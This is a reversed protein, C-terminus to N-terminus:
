HGAAFHSSFLYPVYGWLKLLFVVSPKGTRLTQFVNEHFQKAMGFWPMCVLFLRSPGTRIKNKYKTVLHITSIPSLGPLILLYEANRFWQLGSFWFTVNQYVKEITKDLLIV